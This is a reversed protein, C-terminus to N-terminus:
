APPSSATPGRVATTISRPTIKQWLALLVGTVALSAAAIAGMRVPPSAALAYSVALGAALGALCCGIIGWAGRLYAGLPLDIAKVVLYSLVAFALPYGVAWAVAVSLFGLSSGLVNAGAVFMLPVTVAAIVMYRLTREPHGIGDLLPPGLFGLARLM